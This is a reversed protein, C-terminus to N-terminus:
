VCGSEAKNDGPANELHPYGGEMLSETVDARIVAAHASMVVPRKTKLTVNPLVLTCSVGRNPAGAYANRATLMLLVGGGLTTWTSVFVFVGNVLGM